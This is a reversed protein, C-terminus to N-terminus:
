AGLLSYPTKGLQFRSSSTVAASRTHCCTTHASGPKSAGSLCVVLLVRPSEPARRAPNLPQSTDMPDEPLTLDM